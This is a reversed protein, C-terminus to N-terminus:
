GICCPGMQFGGNGYPVLGHSASARVARMCGPLRGGEDAERQEAELRRVMHRPLSALVQAEAKGLARGGFRAPQSVRGSSSASSNESALEDADHAPAAGTVALPVAEGSDCDSIGEVSWGDMSDGLLEEVDELAEVNWGSDINFIEV